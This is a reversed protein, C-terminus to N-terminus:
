WRIQMYGTLTVGVSNTLTGFQSSSKVDIVDRPNFHGTINFVQLGLDMKREFLDFTKFATMDISFYAPLRQGNPAGEHHRYMDDVSFPFGTRWEIAPSVVVRRPLAVSAWARLRHPVDAPAPAMGGPELLPTALRTFLTGFDNLEGESASRVYSVFLQTDKNWTQRMSVQFERYRSRGTSALLAAGGDPLVGVTPLRDGRRQRVSAQLELNTRVRQEIELSVGDAHPLDLERSAPQFSVSNIPTGSGPDFTTDTRAAYQGYARAALPVFGVFRGISAKVTTWGDADPTYRVGLRPSWAASGASADFRLNLDIQLPTSVDWLDRIGIGGSTDGASIARPPGFEILRTLRGDDDQIRIPQHALTGDMVRQQFGGSLSVTHAGFASLGARDWTVSASRRAGSTDVTSFWNESWGDPSLIAAGSGSAAITTSHRMWGVRVTILQSPGLVFRDVIGGFLDQSSVDPSAEPRQLPSLGSFSTSAPMFLGDLTITQRPSVDFDVRAFSVIGTAGAAPSGSTSTVGPVPVREFNFETSVFYHAIGAPGSAYARPFFAEIRGLGYRRNLRPRPIFGQLGAKFEDGGTTTEISAMSGLVGGFTASVPDRVVAMGKVSEDPLDIASTGTVPDTVNFGDIWLSSEHPRTGGIRLLGDRGRVVAPLLPLSQLIHPRATPLKQAMPASMTSGLREMSTGSSTLASAVVETVETTRGLLLVIHNAQARPVRITEFGELAADVMDTPLGPALQFTGDGATTVSQIIQQGRYVDIRVGPLPLGTQDVVVPRPPPAPAGQTPRPSAQASAPVAALLLACVALLLRGLCFLSMLFPTSRFATFPPVIVHRDALLSSFAARADKRM